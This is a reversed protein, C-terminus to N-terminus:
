VLLDARPSGLGTVEDYGTRASFSGNTGSTVDNYDSSTASYLAPLAQSSGNLTTWGSAVRGQNAIAIIAAICPASVSTGGIQEWPSASTGNYSDYVAVGTHPNANLSLDPTTRHGTNQTAAQYAPRSEFASIGGGSGAWGTENKYSGNANLALSTGG